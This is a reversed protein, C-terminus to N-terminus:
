IYDLIVGTRIMAVNGDQTFLPKGAEDVFYALGPMGIIFTAGPAYHRPINGLKGGWILCDVTDLYYTSNKTRFGRM